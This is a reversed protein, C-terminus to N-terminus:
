SVCAGLGSSSKNISIFVFILCYDNSLWFWNCKCGFSKFRLFFFFLYQLESARIVYSSGGVDKWPAILKRWILKTRKLNEATSWKLFYFKIVNLCTIQSWWITEINGGWLLVCEKSQIYCYRLVSIELM